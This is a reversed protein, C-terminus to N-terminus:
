ERNNVAVGGLEEIDSRIERACRIGRAPGDFTALFGDGITKVERGRFRTINARVEEDTTTAELDM